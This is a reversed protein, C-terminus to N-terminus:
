GSMNRIISMMSDHHTKSINSLMQLMQQQKQLQNQLDINALQAADGVIAIQEWKKQLVTLGTQLSKIKQDSSELIRSIFELDSENYNVTYEENKM